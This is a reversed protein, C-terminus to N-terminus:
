YGSYLAGVARMLFLEVADASSKVIMHNDLLDSTLDYADLEASSRKIMMPESLPWHRLIEATDGRERVTLAGWGRPLIYSISKM